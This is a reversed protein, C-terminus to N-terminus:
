SSSVVNITFIESDYEADKVVDWVILKLTFTQPTTTPTVKFTLRAKENADLIDYGIDWFIAPCNATPSTSKEFECVKNADEFMIKYQFKSNFKNTLDYLVIPKSGIKAEITNSVFKLYDPEEVAPEEEPVEEPIVEPVEEPIVEPVDEPIVEPTEEPVVIVEEKVEAACASFLLLMIILIQFKMKGGLYVINLLM